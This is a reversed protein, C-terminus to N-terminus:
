FQQTSANPVSPNAPTVAISVLAAATVPLQATGSRSNQTASITVPGGPAVGMARGQSGAANSTTEISTSSSSWTASATLNQTSNDSYHGTASFQQTLGAAVSASAPAATISQLAPATVMLQATDSISSLKATIFIPGGQVVGTALGQ